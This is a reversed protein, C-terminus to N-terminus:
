RCSAEEVVLLLRSKEFLAVIQLTGRFAFQKVAFPHGLVLVRQESLGGDEVRVVLRSCREELLLLYPMHVYSSGKNLQEAQELSAKIAEVVEETANVLAWKTIVTRVFPAALLLVLSLLTVELFLILAREVTIHM